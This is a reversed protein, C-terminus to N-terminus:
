SSPRCGARLWFMARRRWCRRRAPWTCMACRAVGPSRRGGTGHDGAVVIPRHGRDGGARDPHLLLQRPCRGLVRCLNGLYHGHPPSALWYLHLSEAENLAMAHEILSKIPAFGTGWAIFVQTNATIRACRLSAARGSCCERYRRGQTWRAGPRRVPQRAHRARPVASQPRRVPLQGVPYDVASPARRGAADCVPRGPVASAPYAATQIHLLALHRRGAASPRACPRRGAAAPDRAASGAEGAGRHRLDTVATHSCLLVTGDAKEAESLVYDYSRM